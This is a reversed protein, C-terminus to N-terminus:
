LDELDPFFFHVFLVIILLMGISESDPEFVGEKNISM